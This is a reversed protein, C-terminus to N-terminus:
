MMATAGRKDQRNIPVGKDLFLEVIESSNNSVAGRLAKGGTKQLDGLEGGHRHLLSALDYFGNGLALLAATQGKTDQGTCDVRRLLLHKISEIHGLSVACHMITMFDCVQNASNQVASQVADEVPGYQLLHLLSADSNEGKFTAVRFAAKIAKSVTPRALVLHRIVEPHTTKATAAVM